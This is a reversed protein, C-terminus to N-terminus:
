APRVSGILRLLEQKTDFRLVARAIERDDCWVTGPLTTLSEVLRRPVLEREGHFRCSREENDTFRVDYVLRQGLLLDLVLTGRISRRDAFGQMDIQGQIEAERQLLLLRRLDVRATVQLTMALEDAPDSLYHFSGKLTEQFRVGLM